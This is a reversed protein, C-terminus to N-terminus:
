ELLEQDEYEGNDEEDAEEVTAQEYQEYECILDNMNAEAETFEMEDMGENTYWHLFAKRRYMAAFQDGIRRFVSQIATSNGIFTASAAADLSPVDCLSTKINNPIWQVFEASNRSQIKFMQQDVDNSSLKGRFMISATLYKGEAPNAAVMMSRHDFMQQTLEPVGLAEYGQSKRSMLPACSPMFFHLRPFPVLNVALKRLDANLQGPFRLSCTIGSMATSILHNLDAYTPSPLKLTKLCIDYLAENDMVFTADTNEILQHMSLTTNYPEIVTDSVKASPFVSFSAMM